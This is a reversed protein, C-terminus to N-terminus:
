KKSEVYSKFNNLITQWGSRQMEVPNTNETEFTELIETQNDRSTFQIKVKRGDGIVYEILENSKVSHYIGEFDFGMSGDKAEMRTLFKGGVRLDNEARPTHWDVSGSCWRIIDDPATWCEWVMKVPANVRVSISVITREITEM